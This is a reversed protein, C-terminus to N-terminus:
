DLSYLGLINLSAKPDMKELNKSIAEIDISGRIEIISLGELHSILTKQCGKFLSEVEDQLLPSEISILTHNGGKPLEKSILGFYTDNEEDDKLRDKLVCLKQLSAARQTTLALSAPDKSAFSASQANSNTYIVELDEFGSLSRKAQLYAHPHSYIRRPSSDAEKSALCYWVSLKSLSSIIVKQSLLGRLTEIVYGSIKNRLPLLAFAGEHKELELFVDGISSKLILEADEYYIHAAKESFTGKPGLTIILM